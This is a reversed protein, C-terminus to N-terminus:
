TTEDGSKRFFETVMLIPKVFAVPLVLALVDCLGSKAFAFLILFMAILRFTYSGRILAQGAKVDQESARDAARDAALAMFFFNGTGVVAGVIGGLLVSGDFEGLLAYIGCMAAVCLVQGALITLTKRIIFTRTDM